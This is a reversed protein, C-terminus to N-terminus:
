PLFHGRRGDDYGLAANHTNSKHFSGGYGIMNKANPNFGMERAM